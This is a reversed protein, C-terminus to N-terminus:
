RSASVVRVPREGSVDARVGEPTVELNVRAGGVRLGRVTVRGLWPPLTPRLRLLGAGADPDLGLIAQMLAVPAAAAWAQPSCAVPYDVPVGVDRSYGCFLEPLRYHAFHSAADVLGTIVQNAERDFGYRKLGLVCLSNDHPWVSGNHYSMPSYTPEAASLTRIGWGSFMDPAVLRAAVSAARAEDVIGSWLCHGIDSSVTAVQRKEGDLAIAYYQREPMWFASNFRAKLDAADRALRRALDAEGLAQLVPALRRKADFVYGQVESVAVPSAAPKGDPHCLSDPSDKWSQVQLGRGPDARFELFGDGDVDGYRDLWNLAERVSPLLERVLDLDGTWAHYDCLLVLFLATADVSGYYRGYPVEGLNAMEGHRMEHLIKGPEEARFPDVQRGQLAALTRLTGRAFEPNLPLAQIATIISDRGFPVAYWPIGAVPFLGQGQDAALLRLDSVSRALIRNLLPNDTDIATCSETWDAYEQRLAELAQDFGRCAPFAGNEAPLVAVDLAATGRPPLSLDWSAQSVTLADPPTLFLVRTQRLVGDRGRYGLTVSGGERRPEEPVGRDAPPVGRVQFLDAFDAEFRLDLRVSVPAFELNTVTIREYLVGARIVRQRELGLGARSFIQRSVGAQLFVRQVYNEAATGGLLGPRQGDVRLEFRSLYRTDRFFLGLPGDEPAIDGWRNSVQFLDGERTVLYEM